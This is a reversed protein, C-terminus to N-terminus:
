QVPLTNSPTDNAVSVIRDALVPHPEACGPCIAIQTSAPGSTDLQTVVKISVGCRCRWIAVATSIPM